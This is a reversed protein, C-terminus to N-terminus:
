VYQPKKIGNRYIRWYLRGYPLKVPYINTVLSIKTTMSRRSRHKNHEREGEFEVACVGFLFTLMIHSRAFDRAQVYMVELREKYVVTVIVHVESVSFGLNFQCPSADEFGLTM